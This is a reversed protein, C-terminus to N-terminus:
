VKSASGHRSMLAHATKLGVRPLSSLYDCGSLICMELFKPACVSTLLPKRARCMCFTRVMEHTFADLSLGDGSNNKLNELKIEHVLGDGAKDLKFLVTHCGFPLCDSDETLVADALENQMLFALQADAEYPAVVFLVSKEKLRQLLGHLLILSPASSSCTSRVVPGNSYRSSGTHWTPRLMRQALSSSGRRPLIERRTSSSGWSAAGRERATHVVVLLETLLPTAPVTGAFLLLSECRRRQVETGKKM